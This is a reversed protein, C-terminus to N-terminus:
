FPLASVAEVLAQRDILGDVAIAMFSLLNPPEQESHSRATDLLATLQDATQTTILRNLSLVVDPFQSSLQQWALAAFEPLSQQASDQYPVAVLDTRLKVIIRPEGPM